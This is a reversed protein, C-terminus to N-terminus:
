KGKAGIPLFHEVKVFSRQLLPDHVQQPCGISCLQHGNLFFRIVEVYVAKGSFRFCSLFGAAVLIKKHVVPKDPAGVQIMSYHAGVLCHDRGVAERHVHQENVKVRRLNINIHMGGLLLDLKFVLLDNICKHLRRYFM